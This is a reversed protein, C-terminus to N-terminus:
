DRWSHWDCKGAGTRLSALNTHMTGLFTSKSEFMKDETGACYTAKEMKNLM